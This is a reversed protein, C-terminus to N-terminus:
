KSQNILSTLSDIERSLARFDEQQNGTQGGISEIWGHTFEIRKSVYEQLRNKRLQLEKPLSVSDLVRLDQGCKEWYPLTVKRLENDLTSVSPGKRAIGVVRMAVEQDKLFNEEAQRFTIYSDKILSTILFATVLTVLIIGGSVLWQSKKSAGKVGSLYFVYGILIGGALGGIHGANDVFPVLGFGLNYLVFLGISSFLPKRIERPVLSTTLLALFLGFMGFIAGSAGASLSDQHWVLSNLSSFVACSLYATTFRVRGVLPELFRGIYLFAYMNMALHLLGIHEFACALLRWYQHAGLTESRINAGWQLLQADDPLLFAYLNGGTLVMALFLLVNLDIILPTVWFDPRPLFIRRWSISRKRSRPPYEGPPDGGFNGSGSNDLQDQAM